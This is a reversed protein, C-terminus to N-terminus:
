LFDGATLKTVSAFTIRSNDSLTITTSGFGVAATALANAVANPGYGFMAVHDFSQRFNWLTYAGGAAGNSFIFEDAGSGAVTSSFMAAGAPAAVLTNQGTGAFMADFGAGGFLIDNGGDASGVLTEAGAGAVLVDGAKGLGVIVNGDGSGVVTSPGTGAVLLDNGGKGGFILNRGAGGVATSSGAGGVFLMSAAQGGYFVGGGANSFISTAGVGAYVTAAGAGGSFFLAGSKSSGYVIPDGGTVNVTTQGTGLVITTGTSITSVISGTVSGSNGAPDKVTIKTVTVEQHGAVGNDIIYNQGSDGTVVIGAAQVNITSVGGGPHVDEYVSIATYNANPSLDTRVGGGPQTPKFTLNRLASTVNSEFGDIKYTVNNVSDDLTVIVTEVLGPSPDTITVLSFPHITDNQGINQVSPLGTIQIISM